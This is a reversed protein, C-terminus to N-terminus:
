FVLDITYKVGHETQRKMEANLQQILTEIIKFGLTSDTEEKFGIGNDALTLIAKSGQKQKLILEFKGKKHDPFAHKISNSLIETVLLSLPIAKDINMLVEDIEAALEIKHTGSSSALINTMLKPLFLKLNIKEFESMKYLQEYVLAMAYIRHQLDECMNKDRKNTIGRKQLRIMSLIIQLNNKVRHHVESLLIEKEKLSKELELTRVKITHEIQTNLAKLEKEKSTVTEIEKQLLKNTNKLKEETAKLKRRNLLFFYLQPPALVFPVITSLLMGALDIEGYVLTLVLATTGGSIAVSAITLLMVLLHINIKKVATKFM